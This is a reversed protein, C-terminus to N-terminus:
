PRVTQIMIRERTTDRRKAITEIAEQNRKPLKDWEVWEETYGQPLMEDVKDRFKDLSEAIFNATSSAIVVPAYVVIRLAVLPLNYKLYPYTKETM